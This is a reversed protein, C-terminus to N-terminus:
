KRHKKKGGELVITRGDNVITAGTLRRVKVSLRGTKALLGKAVSSLDVAITADGGAAIPGFLVTGVVKTKYANGVKVRVVLKFRGQCKAGRKCLVAVLGKGDKVKATGAVTVKAAPPPTVIPCGDNSAPGSANVCHDTADPVGDGDADAPPNLTFTATVDKAANVTVQCPGTGSCAGSWGAFTSGSVAGAALTVVSGHDYTDTCTAGCDISGVDSTVTGAGSGARTVNVAHTDIAFTAAVSHDAGMTLQCAGTGSCDGSWAVLHHHASPTASVTISAGEIFHQSCDAPCSIGPAAVSGSGSASVTLTYVPIPEFNAVVTHDTTGIPVDCTGTGACVDSDGDVTWGTFRNVADPTATFTITSNEIFRHSCAAGCNIGAPSSTVKGSGAGSLSVDLDHTAPPPGGSGFVDVVPSTADAVYLTGNSDVVLGQPSFSGAPTGSGDTDGLLNGFTDFEHVVGQGPDGVLLNGSSPDVALGSLAGFTGTYAQVFTGTSDFRDVEHNPTDVVYVDGASDVAVDAIDAGTFAFPHDPTGTIQNGSVYPVSASFLSPAESADIRTITGNGAVYIEGDHASGSNDVAARIFCCGGGLGDNLDVGAYTANLALGWLDDANSDAVYVRSDSSGYALGQIYGSGNWSGTGDAQAVYGGSSDFKSVLSSGPDSVWLNDSGDVALGSPSVFPTSNAETLQSDYTRGAAVATSSAAFVLVASTLLVGVRRLPRTWGVSGRPVVQSQNSGASTAM